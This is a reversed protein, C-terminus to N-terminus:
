CGWAGLTTPRLDGLALCTLGAPASGASGPGHELPARTPQQPEQFVGAPVAGEAEATERLVDGLPEAEAIAGSLLHHPDVRRELRKGEHSGRGLGSLDARAMKPKERTHGPRVRLREPERDGATHRDSLERTRQRRRGLIFDRVPGSGMISDAAVRTAPPVSGRVIRRPPGPSSALNKTRM